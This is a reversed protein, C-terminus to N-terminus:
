EEKEVFDNALAWDRLVDPDFVDEPNFNEAIYDLVRSADVTLATVEVTINDGILNMLEGALAEDEWYRTARAM